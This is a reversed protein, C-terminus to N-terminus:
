IACASREVRSEDDCCRGSIKKAPIGAIQIEIVGLTIQEIRHQINVRDVAPLYLDGLERRLPFGSGSAFADDIVSWLQHKACFWDLELISGHRKAILRPWGGRDQAHRNTM